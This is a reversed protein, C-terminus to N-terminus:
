GGTNAAADVIIEQAGARGKGNRMWVSREHGRRGERRTGRESRREIGEVDEFMAAGCGLLSDMCHAGEIAM